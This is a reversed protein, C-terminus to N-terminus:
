SASLSTIALFGVTDTFPIDIQLCGPHIETYSLLAGDWHVDYAPSPKLTAIVTATRPQGDHRLRAFMSRQDASFGQDLIWINFGTTLRGPRYYANYWALVPSSLGGFQHWGAGRGTGIIFHEFCYYSAEVEERWLDLATRAIQWAFDGQGLDLATKWIFWQHPMWVSGNWYGDRRYYPASQDVTSLGIRTWYHVPDQLRQLFLTEQEPTCVGAILPMIGDLGQNYNEGSEHLLPGTPVGNEDHLVYSFVGAEADWAYAQLADTFMMIDEHYDAVDEALGLSAAAQALIRASLIVHATIAASTTCEAIGNNQTYVQAPYDDWGGSDWYFYEWTRLLSSKLQRTTSSGLHGALFRYYHRLGPYFRALLARNQTRNWIEHFLYMQVPVPSGHLIFAAHSNGPETLYANLNDVARQVDLELLGLGIFGSDWTYLCDWWKGPTHHRIYQRQTYVPYVVNILETAAMLQQSFRYSEGAPLGPMTLTRQRAGYYVSEREAHTQASFRAFAAQVEEASGCCILSHVIAETQAGLFIPRIFADTFHGEGSGQHIETYNDPVVARMIEDLEDNFFQRVWYSEHDWILGYYTNPTDAYQLIISNPQTNIGTYILPVMESEEAYVPPEDGPLEGFGIRPVHSWIHEAFGLDSIQEAEIIAFGDLDFSGGQAVLRLLYEGTRLADLPLCILAFGFEDPNAGDLTIVENHLGSLQVSPPQDAALRYRLVLLASSLDAPIAVRYQVWDGSESGFGTGIGHGGTFGHDRSEARLFGDEVLNDTPRMTAFQLDEYDLANVWLGGAPLDVTVPRIPESSYTRVPPFNMYAVLHLMLNQALDTTNVFACRVLRERESIASFSADCYVRDKWELEYRYAYYSLDPAAEWAHCGSAWRENPILMQRRYHGPVVALDFRLGKQVDPIHSIGAYKKSYPGWAPLNLDHSKEPLGHLREM